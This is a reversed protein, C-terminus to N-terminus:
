RSRAAKPFVYQGCFFALSTRTFVSECIFLYFSAFM